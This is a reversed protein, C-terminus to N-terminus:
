SDKMVDDVDVTESKITKETDEVKEVEEQPEEEKGILCVAQWPVYYSSFRKEVVPSSTAGEPYTVIYDFYTSAGNHSGETCKKEGPALAESEIYKTPEPKVINYIVPDTIKVERGDKIGWFDFYHDSGETRGQILIYNGTDNIFRFDPWPNYITADTGAPEYYSVRYSHNQRMTIPLGSQLASRFMTTAVQCLGGGYEPVTKDGKIVLETKYGSDADIDGLAKVLSFEEDPKILLGHLVETGVKINHVRNASSGRFNSHGSGIIEKIKFENESVFSDVELEDIVLQVKEQNFSFAQSIKIASKELNLKQGNKGVRWDLVKGEVIELKPLIIEKNIRPALQEELYSIIKTQNLSIAQSFNNKELELWYVLDPARINWVQAQANLDLYHLELEKSTKIILEAEPKLEELDKKYFSPYHSVTKVLVAEPSLNELKKELDFFALEYNIAKGVKEQNIVLLEEKTLFDQKLSFSANQPDVTLEPFSEDLFYDLGIKEIKFKAKIKKQSSPKLFHNLFLFFNNNQSSDFASLASEEPFFSIFSYNLSSDLLEAKKKIVSKGSETEFVIGRNELDETKDSFFDRTEILNKGSLKTQHFYVGPYVHGKFNLFWIIFVLLFFSLALSTVTLFKTKLNKNKIKM